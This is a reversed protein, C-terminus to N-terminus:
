TNSKHHNIKNFSKTPNRIKLVDEEAGIEAM